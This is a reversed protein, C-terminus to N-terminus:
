SSRKVNLSTYPRQGQCHAGRDTKLSLGEVRVDAQTTQTDGHFGLLEVSYLRAEGLQFGQRAVFSSGKPSLIVDEM